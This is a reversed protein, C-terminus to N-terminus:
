SENRAVRQARQAEAADRAENAEEISRYRHVGPRFLPGGAVFRNLDAMRRLTESPDSRRDDPDPMEEM